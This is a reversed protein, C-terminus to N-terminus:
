KSESQSRVEEPACGFWRHCARTFASPNRYGLRKAIEIFPTEHESVWKSALRSKAPDVLATCNTGRKALSRQFAKPHLGLFKAFGDSGPWSRYDLTEFMQSLDVAADSLELDLKKGNAPRKTREM